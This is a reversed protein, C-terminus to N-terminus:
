DGSFLALCDCAVEMLNSGQDNNVRDWSWRKSVDQYLKDVRKVYEMNINEEGSRDRKTIRKACVAPDCSLVVYNADFWVRRGKYQDMSFKLCKYEDEVMKDKNLELFVESVDFPSREMYVTVNEEGEDWQELQRTTQHFFCDVEKQFMFVYDEPQEYFKQLYFQWEDINETIIVQKGGGKDDCTMAKIAHLVSTKGSGIPGSLVNVTVPM